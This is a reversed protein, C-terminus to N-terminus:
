GCTGSCQRNAPVCASRADGTLPLCSFGQPCEQQGVCFRACYFQSDAMQVCAGGPCDGTAPACPKCHLGYEARASFCERTTANCLECTNCAISAQCIRAAGVIPGECLRTTLNCRQDVPCGAHSTCGPLCRYKGDGGRTCRNGLPCSSDTLCFPQCQGVTQGFPIGCTMNAPCQLDNQCEGMLECVKRVCRLSDDGCDSDVACEAVCIKSRPDCVTGFACVQEIAVCRGVSLDCRQGPQEACDANKNCTRLSDPICGRFSKCTQTEGPKLPNPAPWCQRQGDRDACEAGRPCDADQACAMSCFKEQLTADLLCNDQAGGCELDSSCPNCFAKLPKCSRTAAECYEGETCDASRTCGSITDVCLGTFNNCYRPPASPDPSKCSDDSLCICQRRVKDCRLSGCEADVDCERGVYALTGADMASPNRGSGQSCGTLALVFAVCGTLFSPLIRLRMPSETM